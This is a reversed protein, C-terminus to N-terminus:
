ERRHGIQGGLVSLHKPREDPLKGLARLLGEVLVLEADTLEAVLALIAALRSVDGPAPTAELLLYHM